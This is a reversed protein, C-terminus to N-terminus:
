LPNVFRYFLKVKNQQPPTITHKDRVSKAITMERIIELANIVDKWSAAPCVSLWQQYLALKQNKSDGHKDKEIVTIDSPQIGPLHLGFQQWDTLGRLSVDLEPVTPTLSM